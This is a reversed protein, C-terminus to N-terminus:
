NLIPKLTCSICLANINSNLQKLLGLIM